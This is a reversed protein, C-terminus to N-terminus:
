AIHQKMAETSTMFREVFGDADVSKMQDLFTGARTVLEKLGEEKVVTAVYARVSDDLCLTCLLLSVYGFPILLQISDATTADDAEELHRSFYTTLKEINTSGDDTPIMTSARVNESGDALSLLFGLSLIVSNLNNEDLSDNSDESALREFHHSVVDFAASLIRTKAFQQCVLLNCNSLEVASRICSQELQAHGKRSWAMIDALTDGIESILSPPARHMLERSAAATLELWSLLLRLVEVSGVETPSQQLATLHKAMLSIVLGLTEAAPEPPPEALEILRRLGYELCRLMVRAPIIHQHELSEVRVSQELVHFEFDALDRMLMKSLNEKRDRGIRAISRHERLLMSSMNLAAAYIQALCQATAAESVAMTYLGLLLVTASPVDLELEACAIIRNLKESGLMQRKFSQEQLKRVLQMLAQIRLSKNGSEIDELLTEVDRDFRSALGAQRLEHISKLQPGSHPDDSEADMEFQNETSALLDVQAVLENLSNQSSPQRETENSTLMDKLHSRQKGYTRPKKLAPENRIIPKSKSPPSSQADDAIAERRPTSTYQLTIVKSPSPSVDRMDAEKSALKSNPSDLRDILRQRNRPSRNPSVDSLDFENRRAASRNRRNPTLRLTSLELQSPSSVDSPIDDIMQRKRKPTSRTSVMSSSSSHSRPSGSRRPSREPYKLRTSGSSDSTQKPEVRIARAHDVESHSESGRMVNAQMKAQKSASPKLHMQNKEQAKDMTKTAMKHDQRAENDSGKPTVKRRKNAGVSEAKTVEDESSEIEFMAPSSSLAQAPSLSRFSANASKQHLAITSQLEQNLQGSSGADESTDSFPTQTRSPTLHEVTSPRFPNQQKAAVDFLDHVLVKRSAKGYTAPRRRPVEMIDMTRLRSRILDGGNDDVTIPPNTLCQQRLRWYEFTSRGGHQCVNGNLHTNPVSRTNLCSVDPESLGCVLRGIVDATFMLALGNDRARIGPEKRCGRYM